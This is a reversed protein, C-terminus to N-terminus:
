GSGNYSIAFMLYLRKSNVRQVLRFNVYYKGPLSSCNFTGPLLHGLPFHYNKVLYTDTM